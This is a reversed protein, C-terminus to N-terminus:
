SFVGFATGSGSQVPTLFTQFESAPNQSGSPVGGASTIGAPSVKLVESASLCMGPYEPFVPCYRYTAPSAPLETHNLNKGEPEPEGRPLSEFADDNNASIPYIPVSM